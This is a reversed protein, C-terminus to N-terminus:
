EEEEVVGELLSPADRFKWHHFLRYARPMKWVTEKSWTNYYYPVDGQEEDVCEIWYDRVPDYFAWLVLAKRWLRQIATVSRRVLRVRDRLRKSREKKTRVILGTTLPVLERRATSIKEQLNRMKIKEVSQEYTKVKFMKEEHEIHDALRTRLYKTLYRQPMGNIRACDTYKNTTHIAHELERNGEFVGKELRDVQDGLRNLLRQLKVAEEEKTKIFSYLPALHKEAERLALEIERAERGKHGRFVRQINTSSRLQLKEREVKERYHKAHRRSNYGRAYRQIEVAAMNLKRRLETLAAAIAALIRGRYGRFMRQIQVAAANRRRLERLRREEAAILRGVHGRYVREITWASYWELEKRRLYDRRRQTKIRGAKGRMVRQILRRMRDELALRRKRRLREILQADRWIRAVYGRFLRQIENAAQELRARRKAQLLRANAFDNRLARVRRRAKWGIYTRQIISAMKQKFAAFNRARKRRDAKYVQVYRRFCCQIKVACRNRLWMLKVQRYIRRQFFGRVQAQFLPIIKNVLWWLRRVRYKRYAIKKRIMCQIKLACATHLKFNERYKILDHFGKKPKYGFWDTALETFELEKTIPPLPLPLGSGSSTSPRTFGPTQPQSQSQMQESEGGGGTGSGTSAYMDTLTRMPIPPPSGIQRGTRPKQAPSSARSPSGGGSGGGESGPRPLQTTTSKGPSMARSGPVHPLLKSRGRKLGQQQLLQEPPPAPPTVYSMVTRMTVRNSNTGDLKLSSLASVQRALIHVTEDTLNMCRSLDLARVRTCYSAVISAAADSINSGSINLQYLGKGLSKCIAYVGEDSIRECGSIDLSTLCEKLEPNRTDVADFCTKMDRDQLLSCNDLVLIQLNSLNEFIARFAPGTATACGSLKLSELLRCGHAIAKLGADEVRRCGKLDLVRLHPCQAGVALLGRSGFDGVKTCYNLNLVRLSKGMPKTVEALGSDTIRTCGELILVKIQWAGTAITTMAVDDLLKCGTFDLTVLHSCALSLSRLGVHTLQDCGALVLHQISNSCHSAICWMGVDSIQFCRSLDLRTINPIMQCLEQLTANTVEEGSDISYAYLDIDDKLAENAGSCFNRLMMSLRKAGDGEAVNVFKPKKKSRSM